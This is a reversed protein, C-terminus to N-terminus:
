SAFWNTAGLRGADVDARRRGHLLARVPDYVDVVVPADPALRAHLGTGVVGDIHIWVVLRGRFAMEARVADVLAQKRRADDYAGGLRQEEAVKVIGGRPYAPDDPRRRHGHPTGLLPGLWLGEIDSRVVGREIREGRAM